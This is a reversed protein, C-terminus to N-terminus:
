LYKAVVKPDSLPALFKAIELHNDFMALRFAYSNDDQINVLHALKKVTELDGNICASLFKDEITLTPSISDTM